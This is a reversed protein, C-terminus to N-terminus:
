QGFIATITVDGAPMFFTYGGISQDYSVEIESGDSNKKCTLSQLPGVTSDAWFRVPTDFGVEDADVWEQDVQKKVTLTCNTAQKTIHYTIPSSEFWAWYDTDVEAEPLPDGIQYTGENWGAWTYSYEETSARTPTPGAYVPREGQEVTQEILRSEDWNYFNVTVPHKPTNIWHAYFVKDGTDAASIATVETGGSQATYWGGFAYTYAETEAKIVDTPLVAGVGQTYSTINGSQITGGEPHLTVSYVGPTVPPTPGVPPTPDTPTTSGAPVSAPTSAPIEGPVMTGPIVAGNVPIQPTVGTGANRAGGRQNGGGRNDGQEGNGGPPTTQGQVAGGSNEAGASIIQKMETESLGTGSEEKANTKLVDSAADIVKLLEDGTIGQYSAEKYVKKMTETADDMLDLLDDGDIGDEEGADLMGRLGKLIALEMDLDDGAIDGAAKAAKTIAFAEDGMLPVPKGDKAAASNEPAVSTLEAFATMKEGSLGTADVVRILLNDDMAITQLATPPLDEEKYPQMKVSITGGGEAEDDLYITIMQGPPVEVVVQEHTIPNEAVVRVTGDTVMLYEHGSSDIGVYASTGRIGCVLTSAKVDFTQGEALKETVNFFLNGEKLDFVLSNGSAEIEAKSNEEMTVLKTEDLSIMILSEDATSLSQGSSLRMQEKISQEKGNQDYLNATGVLRELRMMVAKVGGDHTAVGIAIGAIVCVALVPLLVILLKKRNKGTKETIQVQDESPIAMERKEM